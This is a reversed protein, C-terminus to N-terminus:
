TYNSSLFCLLLYLFCTSRCAIEGVTLASRDDSYLLLLLLFPLFSILVLQLYTPLTSDLQGMVERSLFLHRSSCLETQRSSSLLSVVDTRGDRRLAPSSLYFSQSLM